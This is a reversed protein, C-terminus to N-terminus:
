CHGQRETDINNNLADKLQEELKQDKTRHDHDGQSRNGLRRPLAAGPNKIDDLIRFGKHSVMSWM